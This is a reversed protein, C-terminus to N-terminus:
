RRPRGPPKEIEFVQLYQIELEDQHAAILYDVGIELVRVPPVMVPGLLKGARDFVLYETVESGGSITPGREVWLNGYEDLMLESYPPRETPVPIQSILERVEAQSLKQEYLQRTEDRWTGIEREDGRVPIQQAEWRVMTMAGDPDFCRVEAATQDGICTRAETPQVAISTHRALPPVVAQPGWPAEVLVQEVDGFFMVTDIPSRDTSVRLAGSKPRFRVTSPSDQSKENKEILRVLLEGEALLTGAGPYLPADVAVAIRERSFSHVGAFNGASDFRTIRYAQDDWVVISDAGLVVVQTPNQFEGPGAGAGGLVRKFMGDAGYLRVTRSGADAVVLDGDSQRAAAAIDVFEYEECGDLVGIVLRPEGAVSWEEGSDWRSEGNGIVAAGDSGEAGLSERSAPRSDCGHMTVGAVMLLGFAGSRCAGLRMSSRPFSVGPTM